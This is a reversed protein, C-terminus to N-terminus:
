GKAFPHTKRFFAKLEGRLFLPRPSIKMKRPHGGRVYTKIRLLRIRLAAGWIEEWRMEEFPNRQLEFFIRPGLGTKQLFKRYVEATVCLFDPVRFGAGVLRALAYAKGGTQSRNVENIEGSTLIRTLNKGGNDESNKALTEPAM